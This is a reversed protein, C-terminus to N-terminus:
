EVDSHREDRDRRAQHPRDGVECVARPLRLTRRILDLDQPGPQTDGPPPALQGIPRRMGAPNWPCADIVTPLGASGPSAYVLAASAIAGPSASCQLPIRPM